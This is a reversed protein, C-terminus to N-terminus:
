YNKDIYCMVTKITLVEEGYMIILCLIDIDEVCDGGGVSM